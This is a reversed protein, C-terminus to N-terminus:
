HFVVRQPLSFAIVRLHGTPAPLTVTPISPQPGSRNWSTGRANFHGTLKGARYEFRFEAPFSSSSAVASAIQVPTSGLNGIRGRELLEDPGGPRKQGWLQWTVDTAHFGATQVAIDNFYKQDITEVGGRPEAAVHANIGASLLTKKDFEDVSPKFTHTTRPVTIEM